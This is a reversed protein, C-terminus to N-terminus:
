RRRGDWRKDGERGEHCVRRLSPKCRLSVLISEDHTKDDEKSEREDMALKSGVDDEVERGKRGREKGILQGKAGEREGRKIVGRLVRGGRTHRVLEELSPERGSLLQVFRERVHVLLSGSDLM